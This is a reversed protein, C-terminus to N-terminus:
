NTACRSPVRSTWPEFGPLPSLKEITILLQNIQIQIHTYVVSSDMCVLRSDKWISLYLFIGHFWSGSCLLTCDTSSRVLIMTTWPSLKRGPIM